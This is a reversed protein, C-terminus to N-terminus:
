RHSMTVDLRTAKVRVVRTEGCRVRTAWWIAVLTISFNLESGGVRIKQLYSNTLLLKVTHQCFRHALMKQQFKYPPAANFFNWFIEM